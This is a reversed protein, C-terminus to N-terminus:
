QKNTCKVQCYIVEHKKRSNLLCIVFSVIQWWWSCIFSVNCSYLTQETSCLHDFVTRGQLSCIKKGKTIIPNYAKKILTITCFLLNCQSWKMCTCLSAAYIRFCFCVNGFEFYASRSYIAISVDLDPSYLNWKWGMRLKISLHFSM